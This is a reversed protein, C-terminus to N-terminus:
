ELRDRVARERVLTRMLRGAVVLTEFIETVRDQLQDGGLVQVLVV